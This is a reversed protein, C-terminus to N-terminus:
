IRKSTKVVVHVGGVKKFMPRQPKGSIDMNVNGNINPKITQTNLPCANVMANLPWNTYTIPIRKKWVQVALVGLGKNSIM